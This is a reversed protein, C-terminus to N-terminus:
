GREISVAFGYPGIKGGALGESGLKEGAPAFNEARESCHLAGHVREGGYERAFAFLGSGRRADLARFEGRQLPALTRRLAIARKYFALSEADGGQWPMPSRYDAELVGAVGLEDGYFVSPMGPFCMQFLVALRHRREDGGCLSLFRSVDHSDLVGLQAAVLQKRYRM